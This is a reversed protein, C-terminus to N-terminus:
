VYYRDRPSFETQENWVPRLQAAQWGFFLSLAFTAALVPRRWALVFRAGSAWPSEGAAEAPTGSAPVRRNM